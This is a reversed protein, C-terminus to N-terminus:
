KVESDIEGKHFRTKIKDGKKIQNINKIPKKNKYTISYGRKLVALPNLDNLSSSSVILRKKFEQEINKFYNILNNSAFSLHHITKNIKNQYLNFSNVFGKEINQFKQLIDRFGNFLNQTLHSISFSYRDLFHSFSRFLDDKIRDQGKQRVSFFVKMNQTLSFVNNDLNNVLKKHNQDLFNAVSTPTSLAKDAVFDAISEDREHGIGTIVPLSSGAISQAVKESNFAKLSELSGGGRILVLIDLDPRDQNVTNIAQSIEDISRDGEVSVDKLFVKFGYQGLNKKFDKIAASKGSTILGIKKILKPIPKKREIDFYGKSKLKKKLAEFARKLAGEGVAEINEVQLSLKGNKYVRPFGSVVVEFGEEILSRVNDLVDWGAFCNIGYDEMDTDKLNFFAYRERVSTDSIEGKIRVEKMQALNRNILGLFSKVSIIEKEPDFDDEAQIIKLVKKGYRSIKTPGWGKIGYLDEIKEPKQSSTRKLTENPFIMFPEIRKKKALDNRWLRLKEFIQKSSFDNKM